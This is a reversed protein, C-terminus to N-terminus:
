FGFSMSQHLTLGPNGESLGSWSVNEFPRKHWGGDVGKEHGVHLQSGTPIKLTTQKSKGFREQSAVPNQGPNLRCDQSNAKSSIGPTSGPGVSVHIQTNTPNPPITTISINPIWRTSSTQSTANGRDINLGSVNMSSAIPTTLPINPSM